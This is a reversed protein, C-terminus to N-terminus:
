PNYKLNFNKYGSYKPADQYKKKSNNFIQESSSILNLSKNISIPIKIQFGINKFIELHAMGKGGTKEFYHKEKTAKYFSFHKYDFYIHVSHLIVHFNINSISKYLKRQESEALYICFYVVFHIQFM